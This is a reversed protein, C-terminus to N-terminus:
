RCKRTVMPVKKADEAISTEMVSNITVITKHGEKLPISAYKFDAIRGLWTVSLDLHNSEGEKLYSHRDIYLQLRYHKLSTSGEILKLGSTKNSYDSIEERFAEEFATRYQSGEKLNGHSGPYNM